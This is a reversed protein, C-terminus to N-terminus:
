FCQTLTRVDKNRVAGPHLRGNARVRRGVREAFLVLAGHGRGGFLGRGCGARVPLLCEPERESLIAHIIEYKYM